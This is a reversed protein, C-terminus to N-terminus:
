APAISGSRGGSERRSVAGIIAAHVQENRERGIARFGALV